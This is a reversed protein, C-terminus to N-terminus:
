FYFASQLVVGAADEDGLMGTIDLNVTNGILVGAGLSYLTMGGQELDRRYGGRLALWSWPRYEGGLRWFQQGPEGAFRKQSSLDIDSSLSAHQWDYAVGAQYVPKVQFTFQQGGNVVTALSQSLLDRGTVAVTLGAMPQLALGVDLNFGTTETRYKSDSFDDGDFNNASVRYHYSDLRQFKPSIGIAVPMEGWQLPMSLAVGFDSVAGALVSGSSTLDELMLPNLPDIQALYTLDAASIDTLGVADLYTQYFLGVDFSFSPLVLSLGVAANVNARNGALGHLDALLLDRNTEIATVDRHAIASDLADYHDQLVDLKDVMNDRDAAEAGIMPLVLTVEDSRRLSMLAPNIVPAGDRNASALAAGGMAQTRADIRQASAPLVVGVCVATVAIPLSNKKMWSYM